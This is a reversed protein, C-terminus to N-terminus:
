SRRGRCGADARWCASIVPQALDLVLADCGKSGRAVGDKAIDLVIASLSVANAVVSSCDVASDAGLSSACRTSAGRRGDCGHYNTM